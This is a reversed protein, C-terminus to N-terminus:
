FFAPLLSPCLNYLIVLCEPANNVSFSSGFATTGQNRRSNYRNTYITIFANGIYKLRTRSSYLFNESKKEITYKNSGSSGFPM